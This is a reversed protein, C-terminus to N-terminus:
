QFVREFDQRRERARGADRGGSAVAQFIGGLIAVTLAFAGVGILWTMLAALYNGKQVVCIIPVALLLSAAAGSAILIYLRLGAQNWQPLCLKAAAMAALVAIAGFLMTFLGYVPGTRGLRFAKGTKNLALYMIVAAVVATVIKQAASGPQGLILTLMQDMVSMWRHM